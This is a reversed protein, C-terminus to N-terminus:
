VTSEVFSHLGCEPRYKVIKTREAAYSFLILPFQECWVLVVRAIFPLWDHNLMFFPLWDHDLLSVVKTRLM